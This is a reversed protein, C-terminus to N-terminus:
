ARAEARAREMPEEAGPEAERKAGDRRLWVESIAFLTGGLALPVLYYVFRFVLVAGIMDAKPLLYVVVAEIVGWGGPVHAIMATANGIVYASATSFFSVEDMASVVEYLCASVLAMNIPGLVVQALALRPPPMPLEWRYLVLPKRLVFSLLMYVPATALGVIAVTRIAMDGLGSVRNAIEGELLLAIGGLVAVGFWVAVGCYVVIRAVDSGKVGWHSYFRYRIAGSSVGAFGINHGIALAVFSGLLAKPFSLSSGVYRLAMWDIVALLLYSAAAFGGAAALRMAPVSTVAEWLEEPSYGSLTRYLLYAGGAIAVPLFLYRWINRSTAWSHKGKDAM